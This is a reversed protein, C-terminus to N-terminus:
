LTLMFLFGALTWAVPFSFNCAKLSYKKKFFFLATTIKSSEFWSRFDALCAVIPHSRFVESRAKNQFPSKVDQFDKIFDLDEILDETFDETYDEVFNELLDELLDERLDEYLDELYDKLM